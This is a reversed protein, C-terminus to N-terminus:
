VAQAVAIAEQESWAAGAAIATQCEDPSMARHLREVLRSRIAATIGHRGLQRHEVCGDAFGALRAATDTQGLAALVLALPYIFTPLDVGLARALEFARLAAARGPEIQDDLILFAALWHLAMFEAALTGHWRSAEVARRARNIAEAMQGAAFAIIALHVKSADEVRVDGLAKSLSLAEELLARAAKLDGGSRRAGGAVLLAYALRKTRGGRRLISLAEDNYQEAEAVDQDRATSLGAQTLAQGLLGPEDGVERLLEIARLNHSLRRRDAYLHWGLGLRIRAEVFPPTANDVFTFALEFWRRQEPVLSLERWLWDTYSALNVGLAPDGAQRLSWGLAARLNDLDSEYV